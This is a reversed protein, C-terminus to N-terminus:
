LSNSGFQLNQRTNESSSITTATSNALELKEFLGPGLQLYGKQVYRIAHVIEM